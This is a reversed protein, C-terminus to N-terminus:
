QVQVSHEFKLGRGHEVRQAVAVEVLVKPMCVQGRSEPGVASEIPGASGGGSPAEWSEGLVGQPDACQCSLGSGAPNGIGRMRPVLYSLEIVLAVVPVRSVVAGQAGTHGITQIQWSLSCSPSRGGTSCLPERWQWLPPGV